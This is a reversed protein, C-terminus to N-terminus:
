HKRRRPTSFPNQVGKVDIGWRQCYRFVKHVVQKNVPRGALMHDRGYLALAMDGDSAAVRAILEDKTKVGFREWNRVGLRLDDFSPLPSLSEPMPTEQPCAQRARRREKDADWTGLDTSGKVRALKLGQEIQRREVAPAPTPYLHYKLDSRSSHRLKRIAAEYLQFVRQRTLVLHRGIEEFPMEDEGESEFGFRLRLIKQERPTLTGLASDIEAELGARAMIEDPGEQKTDVLTELLTRKEDGVWGADISLSRQSQGLVDRMRAVSVGAAAAVEEETSPLGDKQEIANRCDNISQVIRPWNSPLRLAQANEAIHLLIAQRIWFVAYSIFRFGKTWDFRQAATMLGLNGAGILDGLPLGCYLYERAVTVVFRSNAEVMKDRARRDGLRIRKGLEAEEEDSFPTYGAIDRGYREINAWDHIALSVM